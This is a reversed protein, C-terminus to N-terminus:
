RTGAPLLENTVGQEVNYAEASFVMLSKNQAKWGFRTITGDNGSRNEHGSIGMFSKRQQNNSKNALITSDDIAEILGNGFTPTPVRFIANHNAVATAFDPQSINCGAADSRGSITFLAAVGGDASGDPKRKFRVERVPGSSTIFGPLSNRAGAKAAVAVQPNVRPSSGGTAPFAHCGGCSDMNFRPGLGSSGTLSGTVSDVENFTAQGDLFAALQNASM